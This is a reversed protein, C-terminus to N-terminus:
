KRLAVEPNLDVGDQSDRYASIDEENLCGYAHPKRTVGATDRATVAILEQSTVM